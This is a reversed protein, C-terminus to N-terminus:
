SSVLLTGIKKRIAGGKKVIRLMCNSNKCLISSSCCLFTYLYTSTGDYSKYEYYLLNRSVTAEFKADQYDKINVINVIALVTHQKLKLM